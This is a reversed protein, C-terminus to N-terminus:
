TGLPNVHIQVQTPNGLNPPAYSVTASEAAIDVGRGPWIWGTTCGEEACNQGKKVGVGYFDM